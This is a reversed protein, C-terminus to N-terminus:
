VVFPSLLLQRDNAPVWHTGYSSHFPQSGEVWQAIEIPVSWSVLLAFSSLRYCHREYLVMLTPLIRPVQQVIDCESNGHNPITKVFM